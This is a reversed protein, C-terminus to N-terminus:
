APVHREARLPGQRVQGPGQGALRHVLPEEHGARDPIIFQQAAAPTDKNQVDGGAKDVGHFLCAVAYKRGGSKRVVTGRFSVMSSPSDSIAGINNERSFSRTLVEEMFENTHRDGKPTVQYEFFPLGFAVAVANVISQGKDDIWGDLGCTVAPASNLIAEVAAFVDQFYSLLM